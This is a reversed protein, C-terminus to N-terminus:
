THLAAPPLSTGSSASFSDPAPAQCNGQGLGGKEVLVSTAISAWSSSYSFHAAFLIDLERTKRIAPQNPTSCIRSVSQARGNGLQTVEPLTKTDVPM